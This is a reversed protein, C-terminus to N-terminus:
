CLVSQAGGAPGAAPAKTPDRDVIHGVNRMIPNELAITM